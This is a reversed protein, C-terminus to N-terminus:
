DTGPVPARPRALLARAWAVAPELRDFVQLPLQHAAFLREFRPQMFDMGELGPPVVWAVAVLTHTSGLFREFGAQYASFAEPSMLASHKWSVVGAFWRRDLQWQRVARERLQGYAQLAELNFPGRNEWLVLGDSLRVSFEGHPAFGAPQLDRSSFGEDHRDMM